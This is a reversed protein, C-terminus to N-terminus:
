EIFIHPLFSKQLQINKPSFNIIQVSFVTVLVFFISKIKPNQAKLNALFSNKFGQVQIHKGINDYKKFLILNVFTLNTIQGAEKNMDEHTKTIKHIIQRRMFSDSCVWFLAINELKSRSTSFHRFNLMNNFPHVFRNHM